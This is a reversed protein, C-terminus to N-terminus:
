NTLRTIGPSGLLGVAKVVQNVFRESLPDDSPVVGVVEARSAAAKEAKAKKEAAIKKVARNVTDTSFGDGLVRSIERNSADPHKKLYKKIEKVKKAAKKQRVLLSRERDSEDYMAEKAKVPDINAYTWVAISEAIQSCEREDMSPRNSANVTKVLAYTWDILEKESCNTNRRHSYAKFRCYDFTESNRSGSDAGSFQGVDEMTITAAATRFRRKKAPTEDIWNIDLHSALESLDYLEKRLSITQWMEHIPNKCLVKNFHVDADLKKCLAKYVAKAYQMPRSSKFQVQSYVAQNLGYWLHSHGNEPNVVVFNPIPANCDYIEAINYDRDVDFVLWKLNFNTNPQIYPYTLAEDLYRNRNQEQGKNFASRIKLYQSQKGIFYSSKLQTQLAAASTGIFSNM